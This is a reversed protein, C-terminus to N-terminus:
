YVTRFEKEARALLTGISGPNIELAQAIEAYSLGSYRLLLIQASRPKIMLLARRVREQETKREAAKAPDAPDSRQLVEIGAQEEYVLRRKRARLANYGLNTAVRYLWGSLNEMEGPAKRSLQVFTELAIDEAEDWDGLLRYLVRLIPEWNQNFLREFEIGEQRLRSNPLPSRSFPM